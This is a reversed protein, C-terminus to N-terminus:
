APCREVCTEGVPLAIRRGELILTAPEPVTVRISHEDYAVKIGRTEAQLSQIEPIFRPEIVIEDGDAQIGALYRYMWLDVESYMHHNLSGRMEWDEALTTCGSLIWYAYSPYTPNTVMKYATETYGYDSLARFICKIGIIGCDIHFGNEAVLEALRAAAAPKEADELLGMTIVVALATQGEPVPLGDVIFLKRFAQRIRHALQKWEEPDGGDAATGEAMALAFQYYYATDTIVLPCIKTAKPVCWDSLGFAIMGDKDEMRSLYQMYKKMAPLAMHMVSADKTYRLIQLPILMLAADWAPGSGWNFGWGGTPVIGPLSGDARQADLIDQIWKRYAPVADYNTLMQEASLQADGTWGNQERHPCDTPVDVYNSLTARVSAEHIRNLMEDSCTFTGVQKLDTHVFCAEIEFAEPAKDGATEVEVYRFGHYVFRPEFEEFGDKRVAEGGCIYEDAHRLEYGANFSNINSQDVHQGDESLREAYLLKIVTGEAARVRIRAWGSLNIGCDYLEPGIKQMPYVATVRVPPEAAEELVGGPSRCIVAKEWKSDDYGPLDFGRKELRADYSEGGRVHNFGVPGEDGTWDEDSVVTVTRGDALEARLTLIMRPWARWPARDYDWIAGEDNYWGNGLMAGAANVGERLLDTVDYTRYLVRTDFKTFPTILVDETINKGNITFVGYGLGCVSIEAHKVTGPIGFERRLLQARPQVHKRDANRDGPSPLRNIYAAQIWRAGADIM